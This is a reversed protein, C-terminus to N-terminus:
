MWTNRSPSGREVSAASPKEVMGEPPFAFPVENLFAGDLYRYALPTFLEEPNAGALNLLEGDRSSAATKILQQTSAVLDM